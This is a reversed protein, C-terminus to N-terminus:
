FFLHPSVPPRRLLVVVVAEDLGHERHDSAVAVPAPRVLHHPDRGGVVGEAVVGVIQHITLPIPPHVRLFLPLGAFVDPGVSSVPDRHFPPHVRHVGRPIDGGLPVM